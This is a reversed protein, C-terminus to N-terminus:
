THSDIWLGAEIHDEAHDRENPQAGKEVCLQDQKIRRPLLVAFAPWLAFDIFTQDVKM